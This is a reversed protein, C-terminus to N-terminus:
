RLEILVRGAGRNDIISIDVRAAARVSLKQGVKRKRAYDFNGKSPWHRESCFRSSDPFECFKPMINLEFNGPGSIEKLECQFYHQPSLRDGETM